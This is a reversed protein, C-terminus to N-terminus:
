MIIKKEVVAAKIDHKSSIVPDGLIYDLEEESLSEGMVWQIFESPNIGFKSIEPDNDSSLRLKEIRGLVMARIKPGQTTPPPNMQNQMNQPNQARKIAEQNRVIDVKKQMLVEKELEELYERQTLRRLRAMGSGRSSLNIRLDRCTQLEDLDAYQLLDMVKSKPVIMDPKEMIIHGDSQNKVYFTDCGYEDKYNTATKVNISPAKIEGYYEKELDEIRKKISDGRVENLTEPIITTTREVSSVKLEQVAESDVQQLHNSLRAAQESTMNLDNM